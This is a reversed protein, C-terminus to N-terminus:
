FKSLGNQKIRLAGGKELLCIFFVMFVFFSRLAWDTLGFMLFSRQKM